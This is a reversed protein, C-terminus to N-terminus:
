VLRHGGEVHLEEGTTFGNEMLFVAAHALDEPAGVRGVPLRRGQQALREAKQDGALQTWVPTDVWGPSLVNVRVPALELALARALAGLAGNVAAIVAGGPGPRYAAIGSTFILSGGSEIRAHKAVHLAAMLKSDITKRARVLDLEQVPQYHPEVATLVVHHVPASGLEDFVRRVDQEDSVDAAITRVQARNLGNAAQELREPSRGVITVRAGRDLVAKAIALGIGSSGGFVVVQKNDLNMGM